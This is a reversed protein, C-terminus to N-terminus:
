VNQNRIKALADELSRTNTKKLITEEYAWMLPTVIGPGKLSILYSIGDKNKKGANGKTSTIALEAL